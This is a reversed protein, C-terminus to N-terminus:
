ISAATVIALLYGAVVVVPYYLFCGCVCGCVCVYYSMWLCLLWLLCLCLDCCCDSLVICCIFCIPILM